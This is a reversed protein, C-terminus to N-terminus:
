CRNMQHLRVGFYRQRSMGGPLMEEEHVAHVQAGVGQVHGAGAQGQRQLIDEQRAETLGISGSGSPVEIAPIGDAAGAQRAESARM